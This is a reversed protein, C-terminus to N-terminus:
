PTEGAPGPTAAAEPAAAQPAAEAAGEAAPQQPVPTTPAGADTPLALEAYQKLVTIKTQLLNLSQKLNGDFMGALVRAYGEYENIAQPLQTIWRRCVVVKEEAERLRAQAKALAIEQEVAGTRKGESMSRKFALESRARNVDEQRRHIERQWYTLRDQITELCRRIELEAAALSEQGQAGFRALSAHFAEIDEISLVRAAQTM